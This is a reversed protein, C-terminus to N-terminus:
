QEDVSEALISAERLRVEQGSSRCSDLDGIIAQAYACYQNEAGCQGTTRAGNETWNSRRGTSNIGGVIHSRRVRRPVDQITGHITDPPWHAFEPSYPGSWCIRWRTEHNIAKGARRQWQLTLTLWPETKLGMAKVFGAVQHIYGREELMTVMSKRKGTTVEAARETWEWDAGIKHQLWRDHYARKQTKVSTVRRICSRCIFPTSSMNDIHEGPDLIQHIHREITTWFFTSSRRGTECFETPGFRWFRTDRVKWKRTKWIEWM